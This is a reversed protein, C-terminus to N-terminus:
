HELNGSRVTGDDPNRDATDDNGREPQLGSCMGRLNDGYIGFGFHEWSFEEVYERCRAQNREMCYPYHICKKCPKLPNM